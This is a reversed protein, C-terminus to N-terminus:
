QTSWQGTIRLRPDYSRTTTLQTGLLWSSLTNFPTYSPSSFLSAPHPTDSWSSGVSALRGVADFTQAFWIAHQPYQQGAAATTVGNSYALLDGVWDYCYQLGTGSSLTPCGTPASPASTTTCFGAACQYESQVRGMADYAGYVRLSQNIALPASPHTPSCGVPQTWEAVLRDYFGQSTGYQYCSSLTGAPANTYTKAYLRNLADYAYGTEVGRADTKTSVNGIPDYTYGVTGTEPNTASILRSLSDYSFSRPRWTAPAAACTSFATTNTGNQAACTLNNLADYLYNTVLSGPEVVNTLRGLGDSTWQWQNGNGDQFIVVNGSYSWHLSTTGSASPNCSTSEIGGPECEYTKRGLADYLYSTFGDTPDGSTRYPNSVSQVRGIANYTTDTLDAGSPDSLVRERTKRGLGDVDAELMESQTANM